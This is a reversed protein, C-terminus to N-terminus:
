SGQRGGRQRQDPGQGHRGRVTCRGSRRAHVRRRGRRLQPALRAERHARDDAAGARPVPCKARHDYQRRAAHKTDRELCGKTLPEPPHRVINNAAEKEHRIKRRRREGIDRPGTASARSQKASHLTTAVRADAWYSTSCSLETQSLASSSTRTTRPPDAGLQVSKPGPLGRKPPSDVAFPKSCLVRKTSPCSAISAPAASGHSTRASACILM